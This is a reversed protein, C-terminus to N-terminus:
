WLPLAKGYISQQPILGYYTSDYSDPATGIGFFYGPPITTDQHLPSRGTDISKVRAGNIYVGTDSVRLHDGPTGVVLKGFLQGAFLNEPIWETSFVIIDGRHPTYGKDEKVMSMRFDLCTQDQTQYALKYGSLKLGMWCVAISLLMIAYFRVAPHAAMVRVKLYEFLRM